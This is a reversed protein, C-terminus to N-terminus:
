MLSCWRNNQEGDNILAAKRKQQDALKNEKIKIKLTEISTHCYNEYLKNFEETETPIPPNMWIMRISSTPKNNVIINCAEKCKQQHENPNALNRLLYLQFYAFTLRHDINTKLAHMIEQTEPYELLETNGILPSHEIFMQKLKIETTHDSPIIQGIKEHAQKIWACLDTTLVEYTSGGRYDPIHMKHPTSKYTFDGKCLSEIASIKKVLLEQQYPSEHTSSSLDAAFLQQTIITICLIINKFFM